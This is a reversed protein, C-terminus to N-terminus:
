DGAKSLVYDVDSQVDSAKAVIEVVSSGKLNRLEMRVTEWKKKYDAVRDELERVYAGDQDRENQMEDQRISLSKLENLLSVVENQLEHNLQVAEDHGHSASGGRERNDELHRMEEELAACRDRWEATEERADRASAEGQRRAADVSDKALDLEHQLSRLSTAHTASRQSNTGM